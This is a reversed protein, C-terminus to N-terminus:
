YECEGQYTEWDERAAQDLEMFSTSEKIITYKGTNKYSKHFRVLSLMRNADKDGFIWNLWRLWWPFRPHIITYIVGHKGQPIFYMANPTKTSTIWDVSM